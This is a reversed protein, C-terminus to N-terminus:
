GGEFLDYIDKYSNQTPSLDLRVCHIMWDWEGGYDSLSCTYAEMLPCTSNLIAQIRCNIETKGNHWFMPSVSRIVCAGGAGQLSPSSASTVPQLLKLLLVVVSMSFCITSIRRFAM